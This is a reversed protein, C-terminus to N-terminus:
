KLLIRRCKKTIKHRKRKNSMEKGKFQESKNIIQKMKPRKKNRGQSKKM